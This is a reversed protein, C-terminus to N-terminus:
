PKNTVIMKVKLMEALLTIEDEMTPEEKDLVPAEVEELPFNAEWWSM